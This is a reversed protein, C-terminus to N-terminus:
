PLIRRHPRSAESRQLHRGEAVAGHHQRRPHVARSVVVGADGREVMEDVRPPPNMSVDSAYPRSEWLSSRTPRASCPDARLRRRRSWTRTGSGVPLSVGGRASWTREGGPAPSCRAANRAATRARWGRGGRFRACRDRTGGSGRGQPASRPCRRRSPRRRPRPSPRACRAKSRSRRGAGARRRLAGPPRRAPPTTATSASRRRLQERDGSFVVDADHGPRREASPEERSRDGRDGLVVEARVEIAERGSCRALLLSRYAGNRVNAASSPIM